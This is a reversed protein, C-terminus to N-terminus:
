WNLPNIGPFPCERFCYCNIFLSAGTRSNTYEVSYPLFDHSYEILPISTLENLRDVSRITSESICFTYEETGDSNRCIDNEFREQQVAPSPAPRPAYYQGSNLNQNPNINGGTNGSSPVPTISAQALNCTSLLCVTTLTVFLKKM